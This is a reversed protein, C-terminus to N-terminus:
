FKPVKERAQKEKIAKLEAEYRAAQPLELRVPFGGIGHVALAGDDRVWVQGQLMHGFQNQLAKVPDLALPGYKQNKWALGNREGELIADREFDKITPIGGLRM